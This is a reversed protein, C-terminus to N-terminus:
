PKEENPLVPDYGGAAWPHCRLLRRSALWGGKLVGFHKIAMLAYQSCSPYYRCCPKMIPRLLWQYLVIPLCILNRIFRNIQGM